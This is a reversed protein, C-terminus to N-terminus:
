NGGSSKEDGEGKGPMPLRDTSAAEAGSVPTPQCGDASQSVREAVAKRMEDTLKTVEWPHRGGDVWPSDIWIGWCGISSVGPHDPDTRGIEYSLGIVKCIKQTLDDYVEEGVNFPFTIRKHRM